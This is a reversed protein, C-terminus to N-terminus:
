KVRIGVLRKVDELVDKDKVEFALFKGIHGIVAQEFLNQTYETCLKILGEAKDMDALSVPSLLLLYGQKPYVTCLIKGSKKFKVNWGKWIGGDMSCGSYVLNPKVKYEEQLFCVLDDWLSTDVFEKIQNDSPKNEKNFLENWSM